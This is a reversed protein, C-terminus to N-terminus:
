LLNSKKFSLLLWVYQHHYQNKGFIMWNSSFQNIFKILVNRAVQCFLFIIMSVISSKNLISGVNFLVLYVVKYSVKRPKRITLALYVYWTILQRYKLKSKIRESQSCNNPQLKLM